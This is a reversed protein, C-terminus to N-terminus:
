CTTIFKAFDSYVKSPKFEKTRVEELKELMHNYRQTSITTLSQEVSKSNEIVIGCEYREIFNAMATGARCIIPKGLAFADFFKNSLSSDYDIRSSVFNLIFHADSVESALQEFGVRDFIEFDSSLDLLRQRHRGQGFVKVSMNLSTNKIIREFDLIGTVTTDSLTGFTVLRWKKVDNELKRVPLPRRNSCIYFCGNPKSLTKIFNQEKVVKIFEDNISTLADAKKLLYKNELAIWRTFIKNIVTQKEEYKFIQPWLDRVDVILKFKINIKALAFLFGTFPFPHAVVVAQPRNKHVMFYLLLVLSMYYINIVRLIKRTRVSTLERILLYDYNHVSRMRSFISSTSTRKKGSNYSTLSSVYTVDHGAEACYKSLMGSRGIFPEEDLSIDEEFKVIWVKYSM